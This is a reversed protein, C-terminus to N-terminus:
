AFRAFRPTLRRARGTSFRAPTARWNADWAPHELIYAAMTDANIETDSYDETPIDRLFTGVQEDAVPVAEAM